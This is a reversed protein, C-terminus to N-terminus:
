AMGFLVISVALEGPNSVVIAGSCAALKLTMTAGPALIRRPLQEANRLAGSLQLPLLLLRGDHEIAALGLCGVASLSLTESRLFSGRCNWCAANGALTNGDADQPSIGHVAAWTGLDQWDFTARVAGVRGYREMVAYDFSIKRAAAFATQNLVPSGGHLAAECCALIDPALEACAKILTSAKAVFLGANWYNPGAILEMARAAAPKEIFAQVEHFGDVGQDLCLYGFETAARTPPIAITIIHDGAAARAAQGITDAFASTGSIYHDAPMLCLIVDGGHVCKAWLAAACVAPATDRPEPELLLDCSSIERVLPAHHESCVVLPSLAGRLAKARVLTRAFLTEGDGLLDAFPKPRQPTSLPWLRQGAGGAIIVPLIGM